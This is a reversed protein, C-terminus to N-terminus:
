LSASYSSYLLQVVSRLLLQAMEDLMVRFSVRTARMYLLDSRSDSRIYVEYRNVRFIEDVILEINHLISVVIKM